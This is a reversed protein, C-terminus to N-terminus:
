RAPRRAAPPPRFLRELLDHLARAERSWCNPDAPPSWTRGRGILRLTPRGGNSIVVEEPRGGNRCAPSELGDAEARRWAERVARLDGASLLGIRMPRQWSPRRCRLWTGPARVVYRGTALNLRVTGTPCWESHGVSAEISVPPAPNGRQATAPSSLVLTVLAAGAALLARQNM